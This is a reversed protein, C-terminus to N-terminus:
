RTKGHCPPWLFDGHSNWYMVVRAVVKDDEAILDQIETRFDPMGILTKKHSGQERWAQLCILMIRPTLVTSQYSEDLGVLDNPHYVGSLRSSRKNEEISM